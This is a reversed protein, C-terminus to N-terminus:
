LVTGLVHHEALLMLDHGNGGDTHHPVMTPMVGSVGVVARMIMVRSATGVTVDRSWVCGVVGSVAVAHVLAYMVAYFLVMHNICWGDTAVQLGVAVFGRIHVTRRSMRM